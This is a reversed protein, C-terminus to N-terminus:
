SGKTKRPKPEALVAAAIRSAACSCAWGYVQRFEPRSSVAVFVRPGDYAQFNFHDDSNSSGRRWSCPKEKTDEQVKLAAAQREKWKKVKKQYNTM